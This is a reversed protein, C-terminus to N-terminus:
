SGCPIISTQIEVAGTEPFLGYHFERSIQIQFADTKESEGLITLM